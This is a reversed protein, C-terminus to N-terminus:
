VQFTSQMMIYPHWHISHVPMYSFLCSEFTQFESNSAVGPYEVWIENLLPLILSHSWPLSKSSKAHILTYCCKGSHLLCALKMLSSMASCCVCDHYFCFYKFRTHLETCLRITMCLFFCILTTVPGEGWTQNDIIKVKMMGANLRSGFRLDYLVASM